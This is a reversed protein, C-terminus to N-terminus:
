VNTLEQKSSDKTPRPIGLHDCMTNIIHGPIEDRKNTGPPLLVKLLGSKDVVSDRKGKFFMNKEASKQTVGRGVLMTRNDEVLTTTWVYDNKNPPQTFWLIFLFILSHM